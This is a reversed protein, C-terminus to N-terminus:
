DMIWRRAHHIVRCFSYIITYIYGSSRHPTTAHWAMSAADMDCNAPQPTMTEWREPSVSAEPPQFNKYTQITSNKQRNPTPNELFPFSVFNFSSHMLNFLILIILIHSQPTKKPNQLFSILQDHWSEKMASKTTPRRVPCILVPAGQRESLHVGTSIEHLMLSPPLSTPLHLFIYSTYLINYFLDFCYSDLINSDTKTKSLHFYHCRTRDHNPTKWTIIPKSM